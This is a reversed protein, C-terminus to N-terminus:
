SLDSYETHAAEGCSSRGSEPQPPWHLRAEAWSSLQLESALSPHTIFGLDGLSETRYSSLWWCEQSGPEVRTRGGCVSVCLRWWSWCVCIISSNIGSLFPLKGQVCCGWDVSDRARHNWCLEALVVWDQGTLHYHEHWPGKNFLLQRSLWISLHSQFWVIWWFVWCWSAGADLLAHSSGCLAFLAQYLLSICVGDSPYVANQWM